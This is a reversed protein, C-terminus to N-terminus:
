FKILIFNWFLSLIVLINKIQEFSELVDMDKIYMNNFDRYFVDDIEALIQM